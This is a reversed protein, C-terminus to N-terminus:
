CCRHALELPKIVQELRSYIEIDPDFYLVRAFGSDLLKLFMFPKLATNFEMIDYRFAFNDFELIDLDRAFIITCNEPYYGISEVKEDAICLFLKAQPHHKAASRLFNRAMGVYNNSCITFIALSKDPSSDDAAHKEVTETPM